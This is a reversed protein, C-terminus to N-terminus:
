HLDSMNALDLYGPNIKNPRVCKSSGLLTPRTHKDSGLHKSKADALDLTRSSPPWGLRSYRPDLMNALSLIDLSPPWGSGFHMPKVALWTWMVHTQCTWWVWFAQVQCVMLDMIRSSPHDALDVIVYTLCTQWVWTVHTKYTQWIWPTLWTWLM